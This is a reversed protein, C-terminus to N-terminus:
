ASMKTGDRLAQVGPKEIVGERERSPAALPSRNRCSYPRGPEPDALLVVFAVFGDEEPHPYQQVFAWISSILFAVNLLIATSRIATGTQRVATRSIVVVNFIPTFLILLNFAIYAIEKPPGDVVVVLCVFAFLIVNLV